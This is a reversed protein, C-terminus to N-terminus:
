RTPGVREGLMQLVLRTAVELYAFDIKDYTDEATHYYPTSDDSTWGEMLGVSAFGLSRFATHDSSRADREVLMMGLGANANADEYWQFLDDDPRHIEFLLDDDSDWSVMDVTHVSTLARGDEVMGAAAAESGVLGSEEEDFLMFIVNIDRCDFTSVYDAAALVMATGTANDAAGPGAPVSDFHAGFLLWEDSATTAPIEAFVNAGDPGYEHLEGVLGMADFRALLYDRAIARSAPDSRTVITVGPEIEAEGSLRAVDDALADALEVEHVSAPPPCEAVGTSSSGGSSGESSSVGGESSEISTSSTAGSSTGPTASSTSGSSADSSSADATASTDDSGCSAICLAFVLRRMPPM